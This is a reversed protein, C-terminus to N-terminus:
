FMTITLDFPTYELDCYTDLRSQIHECCMVGLVYSYDNDMANHTIVITNGKKNLKIEEKVYIELKDFLENKFSGEELKHRLNNVVENTKNSLEM